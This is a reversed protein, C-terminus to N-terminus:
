VATDSAGTLSEPVVWGRVIPRMRYLVLTEPWSRIASLVCAILLVEPQHSDTRPELLCCCIGM